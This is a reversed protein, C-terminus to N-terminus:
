HRYVPHTQQFDQYSSTVALHTRVELKKCDTALEAINKLLSTRAVGDLRQKQSTSPLVREPM